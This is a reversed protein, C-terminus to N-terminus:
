AASALVLIVHSLHDSRAVLRVRDTNKYYVGAIWKKEEVSFLDM